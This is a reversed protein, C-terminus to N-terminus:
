LDVALPFSNDPFFNSFSGLEHWLRGGAELIQMMEVITDGSTSTKKSLQFVDVVNYAM